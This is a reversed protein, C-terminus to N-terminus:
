LDVYLTHHGVAVTTTGDELKADFGVPGYLAALHARRAVEESFSRQGL